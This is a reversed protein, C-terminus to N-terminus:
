GVKWRIIIRVRYLNIESAASVRQMLKKNINVIVLRVKYEDSFRVDAFIVM